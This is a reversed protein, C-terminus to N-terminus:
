TKLGVTRSDKTMMSRSELSIMELPLCLVILGTSFDTITSKTLALKGPCVDSYFLIIKELTYLDPFQLFSALQDPWNNESEVTAWKDLDMAITKAGIQRVFNLGKCLLTFEQSEGQYFGYSPSQPVHSVCDILCIEVIESSGDYGPRRPFPTGSRRGHGWASRALDRSLSCVHLVPPYNPVTFFFKRWSHKRFVCKGTLWHRSARELFQTILRSDAIIIKWIIIQIEKPLKTFRKFEGETEAARQESAPLRPLAAAQYGNKGRSQLLNKAISSSTKLAVKFEKLVLPRTQGNSPM